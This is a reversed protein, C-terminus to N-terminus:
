QCIYAIRCAVREDSDWDGDPDTVRCGFTTVQGGNVTWVHTSSASSRGTTTVDQPTFPMRTYPDVSVTDGRDVVMCLDPQPDDNANGDSRIFANVIVLCTGNASPTFATGWIEIDPNDTGDELFSGWMGSGMWNKTDAMDISGDAIEASGVANAAIDPNPYTGTLDGGAPSGISIYNSHTHDSRSLTGAAGYDGGSGAYAASIVNGSIGIGSGATYAAGSDNACVWVTGNWQSIQGNGCGQPLQYSSLLRFQGGSLTLGTGATYATQSACTWASGNWQPLQGNTCTQPLQYSPVLGLTVDGSVGGGTLGTGVMVSTIDGGSNSDDTCIWVSGNWQPLQGSNCSQPLQYSGLISFQTANLFLGTGADYTSGDDTGDAFGPPVGILGSWPSQAAYRAYPAATLAQRPALTIYAGGSGPRVGIELYLATGDFVAGFDLQVTFLGDTVTVGNRTVTGGVQAGGNPADYLAFTFDYAGNAPIGGSVLRGQYTFSTDIPALSPYGHAQGSPSTLALFLGFVIALSFITRRKM